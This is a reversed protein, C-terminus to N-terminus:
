VHARGIQMHQVILIPVSLDSPLAPVITALANPGGTSVAVVVVSVTPRGPYASASEAPAAPAPLAARLLATLESGIQALALGIGEDPPRPVVGIAALALAELGAAGGDPALDDFTVVPLVPDLRRIEALTALGDLEPMDVDLLVVDPRLRAIKDLAVRGNPAVGALEMSPEADLVRAVLQRVLVSDHVVLVRSPAGVLHAAPTTAIM